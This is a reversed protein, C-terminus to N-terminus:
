YYYLHLNGLSIVREGKAPTDSHQWAFSIDGFFCYFHLYIFCKLRGDIRNVDTKQERIWNNDELDKFIRNITKNEKGYLRESIKGKYSPKEYLM